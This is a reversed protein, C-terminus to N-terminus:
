KKKEMEPLLMKLKSSPKVESESSKKQYFGPGVAWFGTRNERNNNQHPATKEHGGNGHLGLLRGKKRSKGQDNSEM